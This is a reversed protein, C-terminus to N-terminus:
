TGDPDVVFDWLFRDLALKLGTAVPGWILNSTPVTRWGPLFQDIGMRHNEITLSYTAPNEWYKAGDIPNQVNTATL